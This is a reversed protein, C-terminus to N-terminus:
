RWIGESRLRETHDSDFGFEELISESDTGPEVPPAPQPSVTRSFRPSPAPQTVGDVESFSGRAAAHPHATAEEYTLVPTVCADTGDFHESWHDRSQSGFSSALLKRLDGWGTQDWQSLKLQEDLGLGDVLASFFHPELAGVAVFKNDATRYTDYFPTGGDLLNSERGVTWIGAAALGHTMVGLTSAGEFMAADVVQGHGSTRAEYVAALVGFALLMGGGGFDAVLNLPPAPRQDARGMAQLMGSLALYNIDHGVARSLPGSQGWGTMRGYVLAPNRVSCAEPGFGLREAVGPRMGEFLVDVSEVLKLLVEVGEPRTLDLALSRRGRALVDFRQDTLSLMKSADVRDIRIVDAGADALMMGCFPGPGLGVIELVKLGALPGVLPPTNISM